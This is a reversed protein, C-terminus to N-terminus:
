AQPSQRVPLQKKFHTLALFRGQVVRNCKGSSPTPTISAVPVCECVCVTKCALMHLCQPYLVRRNHGNVHDHMAPVCVSNVDDETVQAVRNQLSVKKKQGAVFVGSFHFRSCSLTLLSARHHTIGAQLCAGTVYHKHAEAIKRFAADLCASSVSNLSSDPTISPHLPGAHDYGSPTSPLSIPYHWAADAGGASHRPCMEGAHHGSGVHKADEAASKKSGCMSV